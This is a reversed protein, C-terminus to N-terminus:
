KAGHYKLLEVIKIHGNEKAWKMARNDHSEVKAGDTILDKVIKYHGNGCAIALPREDDFHLDAGYESLTLFIDYYGYKCALQIPKGDFQNINCYPDNDLLFKLLENDGKRCAYRVVTDDFELSPIYKKNLIIDRVKSLNDPKIAKFLQEASM